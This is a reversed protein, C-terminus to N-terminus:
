ERITQTPSCDSVAIIKCKSASATRTTNTTGVLADPDLGYRANTSAGDLLSLVDRAPPRADPASRLCLKTTEWLVVPIRESPPINAELFELCRSDDQQLAGSRRPFPSSDSRSLMSFFLLGLGYVDRPPQNAFSHYESDEYYEPAYYGPTGPIVAHRKQSDVTGCTGLDAVTAVLRDDRLFLLINDPKLDGHVLGYAHLALVGSTVDAAISVLAEPPIGPSAGHERIYSSLTSVAKEFVVCPRTGPPSQEEQFFVGLIHPLNPHDKLKPHALIRIEQVTSSLGKHQLENEFTINDRTFSEKPRKVIVTRPAEGTWPAEYTASYAGAGRFTWRDPNIRSAPVIDVGLASVYALLNRYGVVTKGGRLQSVARHIDSAHIDAPHQPKL